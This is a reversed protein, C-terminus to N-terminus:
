SQEKGSDPERKEWERFRQLLVKTAPRTKLFSVFEADQLLNALGALRALHEGVTPSILTFLCFVPQNDNAYWPIPTTLFSLSITSRGGPIILPTNVHPIAIGDGIGTPNATERAILMHEFLDRDSGPPLILRQAIQHLVEERTTGPVDHFVGGRELAQSLSGASLPEGDAALSVKVHHTAAWELVEDRNFRMVDQISYGPLHDHRIWDDVQQENVKLLRAVDIVSLEM